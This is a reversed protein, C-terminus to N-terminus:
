KSPASCRHGQGEPSRVGIGASHRSFAVVDGGNVQINRALEFLQELLAAPHVSRGDGTSDTAAMERETTRDDPDSTRDADAM